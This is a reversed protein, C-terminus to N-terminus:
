LGLAKKRQEYEEDSMGDGSEPLAGGGAAQNIFPQEIGLKAAVIENINKIKAARAEPLDSRTPIMALLLEQDKDTFTGEGASRFLQKLIPAIASIAGDAIQQNATMAPLRGVGPATVTNALSESVNRMAATYANFAKNNEEQTKKRKLEAQVNGEAEEVAGASQSRARIEDELTSLPINGSQSIVTPVGAIDKVTAGRMVNDFLRRDEEPLNKYFQFNQIHATPQNGKQAQSIFPRTKEMEMQSEQRIAELNSYDRTFDPKIIGRDKLENDVREAIQPNNFIAEHAKFLFDTNAQQQSQTFQAQQNQQNSIQLDLLKNRRSNPALDQEALANRNRASRINEAQALTNGLNFPQYSM